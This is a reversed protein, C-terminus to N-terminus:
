RCTSTACAGVDHFIGPLYLYLVFRPHHFVMEQVAALQSSERPRQAGGM